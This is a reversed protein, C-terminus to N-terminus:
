RGRQYGNLAGRVRTLGTRRIRRDQEVFLLDQAAYAQVAVGARPLGPQCTTDVRRWRAEAEGALAGAQASSVLRPLHDCRAHRRREWGDREM